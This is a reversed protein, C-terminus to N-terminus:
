PRRWGCRRRPPFGCQTRHRLLNRHITNVKPGIDKEVTQLRLVRSEETRRRLSEQRQLSAAMTNFSTALRAIEDNGSEMVKVIEVIKANLEHIRAKTAAEDRLSAELEELQAQLDLIVSRRREDHGKLASRSRNARVLKKRCLHYAELVVEPEPHVPLMSLDDPDNDTM